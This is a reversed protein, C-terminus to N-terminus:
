PLCWLRTVDPAGVGLLHKDASLAVGGIDETAGAPVALPALASLDTLKVQPFRGVLDATGVAGAVLVPGPSTIAFGSSVTLDMLAAVPTVTQAMSDWVWVNGGANLLVRKGDPLIVLDTTEPFASQMALAQGTATSWLMLKGNYAATALAAGDASYALAVIGFTMPSTQATGLTVPPGSGALPWLQTTGDWNGTAFVAGDPSFAFSAVNTGYDKEGTGPTVVTAIPTTVVTRSVAFRKEDRSLALAHGDAPWTAPAGLLGVGPWATLIAGTAVDYFSAKGSGAIGVTRGDSTLVFRSAQQRLQIFADGTLAAESIREIQQTSAGYAIGEIPENPATGAGFGAALVTGGMSSLKRLSAGDAARWVETQRQDPVLGAGHGVIRMGDDTYRDPVYGDSLFVSVNGDSKFIIGNDGISDTPAGVAIRTGDPSFAVKTRRSTLASITYPFPTLWLQAGDSVRVAEASFTYQAIRGPASGYYDAYM